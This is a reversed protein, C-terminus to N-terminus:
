RGRDPSPRRGGSFPRSGCCAPGADPCAPPALLIAAGAMALAATALSPEVSLVYRPGHSALLELFGWLLDLGRAAAAVLTEGALDALRGPLSLCLSGALLAPLVVVGVFPIAVANAFPGALPQEEFWRVILPALGM